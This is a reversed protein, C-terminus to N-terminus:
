SNKKFYNQNLKVKLGLGLILSANNNRIEFGNKHFNDILLLKILVSFKKIM